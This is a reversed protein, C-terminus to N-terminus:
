CFHCTSNPSLSMYGDQFHLQKLGSFGLLWRLRSALFGLAVSASFGLLWRLWRLWSALLWSAVSTSFGLLWRLRSALFGSFGLLWPVLPDPSWSWPVLAGPFLPGPSWLVLPALGPRLWVKSFFVMAGIFPFPFYFPCKMNWPLLHRAKPPKPYLPNLTYPKCCIM